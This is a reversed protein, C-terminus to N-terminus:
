EMGVQILAVESDTADTFGMRVREVDDARAFTAIAVPDQNRREVRVRMTVEIAEGSKTIAHVCSIEHVVGYDPRLMAMEVAVRHQDRLENPILFEISRGVAEEATYGFLDVMGQNWDRIKGYKDAIARSGDLREISDTYQMRQHRETAANDNYASQHWSQWTVFALLMVWPVLYGFSRLLERAHITM